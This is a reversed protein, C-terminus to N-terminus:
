LLNLCRTAIPRVLTLPYLLQGLITVLHVCFITSPEQPSTPNEEIIKEFRQQLDEVTPVPSISLLTLLEKQIHLPPENLYVSYWYFMVLSGFFVTLSINIWKSIDDAMTDYATPIEVEYKVIRRSFPETIKEFHTRDAIM